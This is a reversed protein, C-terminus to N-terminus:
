PHPDLTLPSPHPTLPSSRIPRKYWIYSWRYWRYWYRWLRGGRRCVKLHKYLMGKMHHLFNIQTRFAVGRARTLAKWARSGKKLRRLQRGMFWTKRKLAYLYYYRYWMAYKWRSHYLRSGKRSRAVKKDYYRIRARFWGMYQSRWKRM